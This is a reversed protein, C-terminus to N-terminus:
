LLKLRRATEGAEVRNNVNLKRYINKVHGKVTNVSVILEHAIEPNSRGAVLLTLVRREQASLPEFLAGNVSATLAPKSSAWAQLISQAYTRLPRETLSPLLQRLLAALAEGEDLFLRMFGEARARSLVLALQQRAEQGQRLAAYTLAILLQVELVRLVHQGQQAVALLQKLQPLTTGAEGQALLLRAHLLRLTQQQLPSLSPQSHTLTGLTSLTGSAGALDGDRLQLRAQWTLVDPIVPLATPNAQLRVIISSLATQTDIVEGRARRLLLECIEIKTRAYEGGYGFDSYAPLPAERLLQEARVLDNREYALRLLGCLANARLIDEGREDHGSTGALTQQYYPTAQHLRGMELCVEGFLWGMIRTFARDALNLSLTYGEFLHQYAQDFAGGQTAEVGLAILCGCHWEVWEAPQESTHPPLLPLAQRAHLAAQAIMGHVATFTARFASLIGVLHVDGQRRWGEEALQLLDEVPEIRWAPGAEEALLQAQAFLFCLAPRAYLLPEPLQELWHLMTHYESFYARANLREILQGAREFEQASLAAEIAEVPMSHAEYWLSAQLSLHRLEAEGLRHAAEARLSAAWLAHYRYWVGARDLAELFFGSREAQALWEASEQRGTVADCLSGSLRSLVSTQLLFLQITEQQANLVESVFYEQMLGQPRLSPSLAADTSFQALYDEVMQPTMQRQQGQLSLALLRLGTAWGELHRHLSRVVEQSFTQPLFQQLFAATEEPSFRLQASQIELLDGRARWRVLPLPPQSRTLIITHLTAPLHEIFFALTEHIRTQTILHYDELVLVGARVSRALDNLLITLATELPSSSFSLHSTQSLQELAGQGLHPDLVQCAAVLESWFRLPDNDGGDLSFWAVPEPPETGALKRRHALWQTVLTTKGFGAPAQVLTLKQTRGIDLLTLLRSREVLMASLRPPQLKTELLPAVQSPAIAGSRHKKGRKRATSGMTFRTGVEELRALSLEATKGLYRKQTRGDLTRYAYWYADGRQLQEKRITYHAGLRDEFAFSPITALWNTWAASGPVLESSLPLSSAALLYSRAEPSWRLLYPTHRPMLWANRSRSGPQDKKGLLSLITYCLLPNNSFIFSV